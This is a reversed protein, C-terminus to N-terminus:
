LWSSDSFLEDIQTDAEDDEAIWMALYDELSEGSVGEGEALPGYLLSEIGLDSEELNLIELEITAQKERALELYRQNSMIEVDIPAWLAPAEGEAGAGTNSRNNIFNIVDLVDLPDTGGSGNVDL